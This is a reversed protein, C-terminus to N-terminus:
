NNEEEDGDIDDIKFCSVNGIFKSKTEIVLEKLKNIFADDETQFKGNFTIEFM